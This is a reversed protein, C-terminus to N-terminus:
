EEGPRALISRSGSSLVRDSATVMRRKRTRLYDDIRWARTKTSYLTRMSSGLDRLQCRVRGRSSARTCARVASRLRWSASLAIVSSSPM